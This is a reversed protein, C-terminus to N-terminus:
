VREGLRHLLSGRVPGILVQELAYGAQHRLTDGRLIRLDFAIEALHHHGSDGFRSWLEELCRHVYFANMELDPLQLSHRLTGFEVQVFDPRTVELSSLWDSPGHDGRDFISMGLQSNVLAFNIRRDHLGHLCHFRSM